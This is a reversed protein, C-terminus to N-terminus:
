PGAGDISLKEQSQEVIGVCAHAQESGTPQSCHAQGAIELPQARAGGVTVASNCHRREERALPDDIPSLSGRRERPM